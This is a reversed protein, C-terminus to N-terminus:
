GMCKRRRSDMPKRYVSLTLQYAKGWVRLDKFDEM